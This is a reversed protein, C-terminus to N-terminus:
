WDDWEGDEFNSAKVGAFVAELFLTANIVTALYQISNVIPDGSEMKGDPGEKPICVPCVLAVLPDEHFNVKYEKLSALDNSTTFLKYNTDYVVKLNKKVAGQTVSAKIGVDSAIVFLTQAIPRVANSFTLLQDDSVPEKDLPKPFVFIYHASLIYNNFMELSQASFTEVNDVRVVIIYCGFLHKSIFLVSSHNLDQQFIQTITPSEFFYQAAHIIRSNSSGTFNGHLTLDVSSCQKLLSSHFASTFSRIPDDFPEVKPFILPLLLIFSLITM